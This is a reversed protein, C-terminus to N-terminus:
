SHHFKQVLKDVKILIFNAETFDYKGSEYKLVQSAIKQGNKYISINANRKGIKFAEVDVEVPFENNLFAIDNATIHKIFNDKKQLYKLLYM